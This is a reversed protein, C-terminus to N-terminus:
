PREGRRVSAEPAAAKADWAQGVGLHKLAQRNIRQTADTRPLSEVFEVYRPVKFPALRAECWRVLEEPPLEAAPRLRVYAKVDEDGLESPVGVVASELVNAHANIVGEVEFASINEGRRRIRHARRGTFYVYSDRDQHGLDGTHFWLNRWAALTERPKGYYELMTTFPLRPRAVIEGERSPPVPTDEEDVIALELYDSPTGVSGERPAGRPTATMLTGFETMGYVEQLEVAFRRQFEERQEKAVTWLEVGVGLRAPHERDDERPEQKLLMVLMAGLYGFITAEFERVQAWFRSASFRRTLACPIGAAVAGMVYHQAAIHYLPMPPFICDTQRLAVRERFREGAAVYSFHPLVVGKPLGTTGSTYIISMVDSARLSYEAPEGTGELLAAFPLGAAGSGVGIELKVTKLEPKIRAHKDGFAEDVVVAASESDNISYALEEPALSTNLPVWVAGLRALAFWLCFQEPSNGLLTAVRDGKGIGLRELSRAIRNARADIEAYSLTQGDFRLLPKEGHVRAAGELFEKLSRARIEGERM